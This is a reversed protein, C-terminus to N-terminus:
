QDKPEQRDLIGIDLVPAADINHADMLATIRQLSSIIMAREWDELKKFRDIFEKQLPPSSKKIINKGDETLYAHVKRRDINSRKRIVLGKTELRDLINTVTAQSLSVDNSLESISVEGISKISQLLLLQPTTLGSTKHLKRSYLDTVRMLKRLAILVSKIETKTM